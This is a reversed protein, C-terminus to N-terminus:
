PFIINLICQNTLTCKLLSFTSNNLYSNYCLITKQCIESIIVLVPVGHVKSIVSRIGQISIDVIITGM